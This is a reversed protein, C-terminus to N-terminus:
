PQYSYFRQHRRKNRYRSVKAELDMIYIQRQRMMDPNTEVSQQNRALNLQEKIQEISWPAPPSDQQAARSMSSTPCTPTRPPIQQYGRTRMLDQVQQHYFWANAELAQARERERQLQETAHALAGHEGWGADLVATHAAGPLPSPKQSASQTLPPM